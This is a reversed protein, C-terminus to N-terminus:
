KRLLGAILALPGFLTIQGMASLAAASLRTRSRPRAQRALAVLAAHAAAQQRDRLYDRTYAELALPSVSM